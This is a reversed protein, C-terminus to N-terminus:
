KKEYSQQTSASKKYQKIKDKLQVILKQANTLNSSVGSVRANCLTKLGGPISDELKKFERMTESLSNQLEDIKFQLRAFDERKVKSTEESLIQHLVESVKNESILNNKM